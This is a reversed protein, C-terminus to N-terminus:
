LQHQILEPSDPMSLPTTPYDYGSDSCNASHDFSHSLPPTHPNSTDYPNQANMDMGPVFGYNMYPSLSEEPYPERKIADSFHTMSPLTCPVTTTAIYSPYGDATTMPHYAQASGYPPLLMEDPPPYASYPMFPPTHSREREDYSSPFMLEDEHTMPPTFQPAPVPKQPMVNSKQTKSPSKKSSKNTQGQKESGSAPSSGDSTGARRELDELRRKLKKRYNRQAIRNQIRRREALDSIKTWDEDPNASSSFASSTGHASYQRPPAQAQAYTYQHQSMAFM